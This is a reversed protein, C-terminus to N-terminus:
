IELGREELRELLARERLEDYSPEREPATVQIGLDGLADSFIDAGDRAKGRVHSTSAADMKAENPEIIESIKEPDDALSAFREWLARIAGTTTYGARALARDGAAKLDGDIRANIQATMSAM